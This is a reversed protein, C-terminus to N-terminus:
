KARPLYMYLISIIKWSYDTNYAINKTRLEDVMKTFDKIDFKTHTFTKFAKLATLFHGYYNKKWHDRKM